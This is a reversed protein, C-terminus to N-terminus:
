SISAQRFHRVIQLYKYNCKNLSLHHTKIGMEINKQVIKLIDAYIQM